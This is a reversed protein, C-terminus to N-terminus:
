DFVEDEVFLEAGDSGDGGDGLGGGGFVFFFVAAVVEGLHEVVEEVGFWVGGGSGVRTGWGRDATGDGSLGPDGALTRHESPHLTPYLCGVVMLRGCDEGGELGDGFHSIAAHGV